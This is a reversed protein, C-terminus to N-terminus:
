TSLHPTQCSVEANRACSPVPMGLVGRRCCRDPALLTLSRVPLVPFLGLLLLAGLARQQQLQHLAAAPARGLLYPLARRERIDEYPIRAYHLPCKHADEAYQRGGTITERVRCCACRMGKKM